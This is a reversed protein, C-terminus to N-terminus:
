CGFRPQLDEEGPFANNEQNFPGVNGDDSIPKVVFYYLVNPDETDNGMSEGEGEYFKVAQGEAM